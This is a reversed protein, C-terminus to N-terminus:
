LSTRNERLWMELVLVSWLQHGLRVHGARHSEFEKRLNKLDFLTSVKSQSSLPYEAFLPALERKLWGHVPIAFGQKRKHLISEPLRVTRPDSAAKRVLWKTLGGDIKLRSPFHAVLDFLVPDLWPVRVELSHFMSMTDVKELLDFPLYNLVDAELMRDHGSLQHNWHARFEIPTTQLDPLLLRNWFTGAPDLHHWRHYLREPTRFLDGLVRGSRSVMGTEHARGSFPRTSKPLCRSLNYLPYYPYGGWIEDGGDGALAVKLDAGVAKSIAWTPWASSDGLPQNMASVVQPLDSAELPGLVIEHHDTGCIEAVGRASEIESYAAEEFGVTYTSLKKGIQSAAEAVLFGSDLGGSLFAGVPVDSVLHYRVSERFCHQFERLGACQSLVRKPSYSPKWYNEQAPPTGPKWRLRTAPPLSQVGRHITGPAPISATDLYWRLSDQNLRWGDTRAFPSLGCDPFSGRAESGLALLMSKLAPLTSAFALGKEDGCWFLPKIGFRDRALHLERLYEDWVAFAFMGRLGLEWDSERTESLHALVELDNGTGFHHGAAVLRKRIEQHNYIEGNGVVQIRRSENEYPPEQGEPDIISLRRMGVLVGPHKYIGLADPGRRFLANSAAEVVPDPIEYEESLVIGFIGCM